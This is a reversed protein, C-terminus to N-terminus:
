IMKKVVSWYSDALDSRGLRDNAVALHQYLNKSGMRGIELEVLAKPKWLAKSISNSLIMKGYVEDYMKDYKVLSVRDAYVADRFDLALEAYQIAEEYEMRNISIYALHSNIKFFYEQELPDLHELNNLYDTSDKNKGRLSIKDICEKFYRAALDWMDMAMYRKAVKYINRYKPMIQYAAQYSDDMLKRLSETGECNKGLRYLISSAYPQNGVADRAKKFAEVADLKHVKSIECVLGMLMWTNSCEPFDHQLQLAEELLEDVTYYLYGKTLYQALNAKQKCYLTAYRISYDSCTIEKNSEYYQSLESAAESFLVGAEEVVPTDIYFYQLTMSAQLINYNIFTTVLQNINQPNVGLIEKLRTNLDRQSGNYKKEDLDYRADYDEFNNAESHDEKLRESVYIGVLRFMEAYKQFKIRNDNSYTLLVSKNKVM